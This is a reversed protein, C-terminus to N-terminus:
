ILLFCFLFFKLKAAIEILNKLLAAIIVDDNLFWSRLLQPSSVMNVVAGGCNSNLEYM